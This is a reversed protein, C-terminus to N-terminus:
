KTEKKPQLARSAELIPLNAETPIYIVESTGDNIGQVWLYQIYEKKDKLSDGLINNAEALGKAKTIEAQALFEAAENKAEAEQIVIKRNWEAEALEARGAMEKQWVRYLPWGFMPVAIIVAAGLILIATTKPKITFPGIRPM